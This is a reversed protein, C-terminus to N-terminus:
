VKRAEMITSPKLSRMARLGSTITLHRHKRLLALLMSDDLPDARMTCLQLMQFPPLKEIVKWNYLFSIRMESPRFIDIADFFGRDCYTDANLSIILSKVNIVNMLKVLNSRIEPSHLTKFNFQFL